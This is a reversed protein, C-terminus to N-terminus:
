LEELARICCQREVRRTVEIKAEESFAARKFLGRLAATIDSGTVSLERKKPLHTITITIGYHDREIKIRAFIIDTSTVEIEKNPTACNNSM